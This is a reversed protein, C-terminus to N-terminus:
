MDGLCTGVDGKVRWMIQMEKEEKEKWCMSERM